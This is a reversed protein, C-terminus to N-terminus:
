SGPDPIFMGSGCCQDVPNRILMVKIRIRIWSKVKIHIVIWSKVNILIQIRRIRILTIRIRVWQEISRGLSWKSGGLWWLSRESGEVAGNQPM